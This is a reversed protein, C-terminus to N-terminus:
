NSIKKLVVSEKFAKSLQKLFENFSAHNEQKLVIFNLVIQNNYIIQNDKQEYNITASYFENKQEFNEPLYSIEYGNPIELVNISQNINKFEVEFDNKRDEKLKYELIKKSLNMNIYIEKESSTIYDDISFDYDVEYPEDYDYKNKEVYNEVLFKNSGKRLNTNFFETIEKPTKIREFYNYLDIKNYGTLYLNGKGKVTKNDLYLYVSDKAITAEPPMIPVTIIKFNNEGIGVLAEKGQIFSSPIGLKYYRGTADLFLTDKENIYTLIMHNDSLPTPVETYKYPLSRTGIWTLHGSINAIKLMEFLINSNDKCDGYKKNFIDTAERPIFGGLAYEFAVYKINQQTWYYIAKVKETESIKDKTLSDVILKLESNNNDANLGSVLSYYWNYLGSVDNLLKITEGKKTTYETIYPIIHPLRSRVSTSKKESEFKDLNNVEWSYITTGKKETESYTIPLDNFNFTKFNLKIAKDVVITLKNHIVPSYDGLFHSMLFRPNTIKEVKALKTKVGEKMYPYIFSTTKTDDHFISGSLEDSEKFEKVKNEIYKGNNYVFTSANISLLNFFTSHQVSEKSSFKATPGIYLLEEVSEVKIDIEDKILQIYYTTEKNLMVAQSNPYKEKFLEYEPSFQAILNISISVSFLLLAITKKVFNPKKTFLKPKLKMM